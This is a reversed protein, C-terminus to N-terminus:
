CWPEPTRAPHGGTGTATAATSAVVAFPPYGARAVQALAEPIGMGMVTAADGGKGHLAIVPRLAEGARASARDGLEDGRRPGGLRVVGDCIPAAKPPPAPEGPPPAGVATAVGLRLLAGEAALGAGLRMITRRTPKPM